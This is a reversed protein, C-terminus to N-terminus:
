CSFGVWFGIKGGGWFGDITLFFVGCSWRLAWHVVDLGVYLAFESCSGFGVYGAFGVGLAVVSLPRAGVEPVVLLSVAQGWEPDPTGVVVAERVGPVHEAAAEEVPRPAVKVRISGMATTWGSWDRFSCTWGM